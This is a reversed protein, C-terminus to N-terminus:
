LNGGGEKLKTHLLEPDKSITPKITPNLIAPDTRRIPRGMMMTQMTAHQTAPVPWRCVVTVLFRVAGGGVVVTNAVEM